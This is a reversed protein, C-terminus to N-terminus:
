TPKQSPEKSLTGYAPRTAAATHVVQENWDKLRPLLRRVGERGQLAKEVQGALTQGADDNDFALLIEAAPHRAALAVIQALTHPSLGGGTSCYLADRRGVLQALSLSDVGSETLAIKVPESGELPGM